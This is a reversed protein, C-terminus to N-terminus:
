FTGDMDEDDSYEPHFNKTYESASMAYESFMLDTRHEGFAQEIAKDGCFPCEKLMQTENENASLEAIRAKLCKIHVKHGCHYINYPEPLLIMHCLDCGSYPHIAVPGSNGHLESHDRKQLVEDLERSTNDKETEHQTLFTEIMRAGTEDLNHTSILVEYPIYSSLRTFLSDFVPTPRTLMQRCISHYIQKHPLSDDSGYQHHAAMFMLELTDGDDARSMLRVARQVVHTSDMSLVVQFACLIMGELEFLKAAIKKVREPDSLSIQSKNQTSKNGKAISQACQALLSLDLDLKKDKLFGIVEKDSLQPDRIKLSALLNLGAREGVLAMPQSYFAELYIRIGTLLQGLDVDQKDKGYSAIVGVGCLLSVATASPPVKMETIIKVTTEFFKVIPRSSNSSRDKLGFRTPSSILRTLHAQFIDRIYPLQDESKRNEYMACIVTVSTEFLQELWRTEEEGLEPVAMLILTKQVLADALVEWDIHHKLDDSTWCSSDTIGCCAIIILGDVIPYQGVIEYALEKPIFDRCEQVFDCFNKYEPLDIWNFPEPQDRILKLPIAECLRSMYMSVLILCLMERQIVRKWSYKRLIQRLYQILLEKAWLFFDCTLHVSAGMHQISSVLRTRLRKKDLLLIVVEYLNLTCNKVIRQLNKIRNEESTPETHEEWLFEALQKVVEGSRVERIEAQTKALKRANEFDENTLFENFLFKDTASRNICGVSSSNFIFIGYHSSYQAGMIGGSFPVPKPWLPQLERGKLLYEQAKGQDVIILSSTTFGYFLIPWSSGKMGGENELNLKELNWKHDASWFSAIMLEPVDKKRGNYLLFEPMQYRDSYTILQTPYQFSPIEKDIMCKDEFFVDFISPPEAIDSATRRSMRARHLPIQHLMLAPIEASSYYYISDTTLLFINNVIQEEDNSLADEIGNKEEITNIRYLIADVAQVVPLVDHVVNWRTKLRRYAELERDMRDRLRKEVKEIKEKPEPFACERKGNSKIQYKVMLESVKQQKAKLKEMSASLHWSDNEFTQPLECIPYISIPDHKLDTCHNTLGYITDIMLKKAEEKLILVADKDDAELDAEELMTVFNGFMSLFEKATSAYRDIKEQEAMLAAITDADANLSEEINKLAKTVRTTLTSDKLIDHCANKVNKLRESLEKSQIDGLQMLEEFVKCLRNILMQEQYFTLQLEEPYKSTGIMGSDNKNEETIPEWQDHTGKGKDQFRGWLKQILGWKKKLQRIIDQKEVQTLGQQYTRMIAFDLISCGPFVDMLSSFLKVVPKVDNGHEVLTVSCCIVHGNQTVIYIVDTRFEDEEDDDYFVSAVEDGHLQWFHVWNKMKGGFFYLCQDETELFFRTKARNPWLLKPSDNGEIWPVVFSPQGSTVERFQLLQWDGTFVWFFGNGPFVDLVSRTNKSDMRTLKPPESCRAAM